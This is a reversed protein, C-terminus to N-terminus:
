VGEAGQFYSVVSSADNIAPFASEYSCDLVQGPPSVQGPPLCINNSIGGGLSCGFVVMGVDNIVPSYYEALSPDGAQAVLESLTFIGQGGLSPRPAYPKFTAAFVLKGERNISFFSGEAPPSFFDIITKGAITDGPQVLLESPTFIGLSGSFSGLFFVAGADSIALTWDYGPFGSGSFGTLRRGGITDGTKVLLESPTFIGSGGSFSGLFVVTGANNIAPTGVSTLTKGAIIEGTQALLTFKYGPAAAQAPALVAPVLLGIAWIRARWKSRYLVLMGLLAFGALACTMPEPTITVTSPATTSAITHLSSDLLQVNSLAVDSTGTGIVTFNVIALTGDGSAGPGSGLLTDAVGRITGESTTFRFGITGPIFFTNRGASSLFSGETVGTAELIDPALTLDFQFAFVDTAEQIDVDLSFKGGPPEAAQPPQISLIPNAFATSSALIILFGGLKTLVATNM